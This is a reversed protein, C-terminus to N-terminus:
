FISRMLVTEHLVFTIKNESHSKQESFSVFYFSHFILNFM